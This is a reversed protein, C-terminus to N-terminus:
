CAMGNVRKKKANRSNRNKRGNTMIMKAKTETSKPHNCTAVAIETMRKNKQRSEYKVNNCHSFTTLEDEDTMRFVFYLPMPKIIIITCVSQANNMMFM